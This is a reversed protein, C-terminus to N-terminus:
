PVVFMKSPHGGLTDPGRMSIYLLPLLPKLVYIGCISNCKASQTLYYQAISNSHAQHLEDDYKLLTSNLSPGPISYALYM